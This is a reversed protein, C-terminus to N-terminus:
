RSGQARASVVPSVLRVPPHDASDPSHGTIPVPDNPPLEEWDRSSFAGAEARDRIVRFAQNIAAGAFAYRIADNPARRDTVENLCFNNRRLEAMALAYGATSSPTGFVVTKGQVYRLDQVTSQKHVFFVASYGRGAGQVAVIAPVLADREMEIIPFATTLIFDLRGKKIRSRMQDLDRAVFVTVDGIGSGRLRSELYEVFPDFDQLLQGPDASILGIRFQRAADDASVAPGSLCSISAILFILITRKLTSM